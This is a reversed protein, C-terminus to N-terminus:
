EKTKPTLVFKKILVVGAAFVILVVLVISLNAQAEEAISLGTPAHISITESKSTGLTKIYPDTIDELKKISSTEKDTNGTIDYGEMRVSKGAYNELKAIEILNSYEYDNTGTSTTELVKSLTLTTVNREGPLIPIYLNSKNNADTVNFKDGERGNALDALYDLYNVYTEGGIARILTNYKAVIVSNGERTTNFENVTTLRGNIKCSNRGNTHIERSIIINGDINSEHNPMYLSLEVFSFEEGHRIMEKSFRGGTAIQLSDIILTKGAGTEGTLINLGNNLNLILDEIIGINKIHLTSIM